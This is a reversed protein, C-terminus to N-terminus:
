QSSYTYERFFIKESQLEELIPNYIEKVVPTLVGKKHIKNKFVLLTAIGLPLGVTRAMATNLSNNGEVSLSSIIKNKIGNLEFDIQHQMLVLDKDGESLRWKDEIIKQLCEAPTAEPKVDLYSDSFIGLWDLKHFEEKELKLYDSVSIRDQCFSSTMESIKMKDANRFRVSDDTFGLKVLKDWAASFGKYRITGRLFSCAEQLGYKEIYSISDRNPYAEYEGYIDFQLNTTHLFLQSYPVIKLQNNELYQSTGLGALVVNRPNWTVKYGWPNTNSEPTVLGGCYSHFSTIKAGDEKLKDIMKMASMHDIGPDLGCEMLFVLGKQKVQEEITKLEPSIYSASLFHKSQELCIKAVQFHMSPPLLSVVIKADSILANLCDVDGLNGCFQEVEPFRSVRETLNRYDADAVKLIYLHKSAQNALYEILVGSSKGAGLVLIKDM